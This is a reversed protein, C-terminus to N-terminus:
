ALLNLRSHLVDAAAYSGGTVAFNMKFYDSASASAVSGDLLRKSLPISNIKNM